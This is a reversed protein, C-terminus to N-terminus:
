QFYEIPPNYFASSGYISLWSRLYNSTAHLVLKDSVCAHVCFMPIRYIPHMELSIPFKSSQMILAALERGQDLNYNVIQGDRLFFQFYLDPEMYTESYFIHHEVFAAGIPAILQQAESGFLGDVGFLETLEKRRKLYDQGAGRIECLLWDDNLKDSIRCLERAEDNFQERTFM